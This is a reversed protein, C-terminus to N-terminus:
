QLVFTCLPKEQRLRVLMSLGPARTAQPQSEFNNSGMCRGEVGIECAWHGGVKGGLISGDIPHSDQVARVFTLKDCVVFLERWWIFPIRIVVLAKRVRHCV